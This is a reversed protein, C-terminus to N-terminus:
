PAVADLAAQDIRITARGRLTALYEEQARAQKERLLREHILSRAEALSQRAAPRRVTVKFVHFGYPSPTVKSITNLRLEFCADFVEPLGSGKGFWGLDGGAKGEPAISSRRAVEGFALPGRRM